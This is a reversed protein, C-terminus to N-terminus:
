LKTASDAQAHRCCGATGPGQRRNASRRLEDVSQPGTTLGFKRMTSPDLQRHSSYLVSQMAVLLGSGIAMEELYPKVKQEIGM